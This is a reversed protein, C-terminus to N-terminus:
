TFVKNKKSLYKHLTTYAQLISQSDEVSGGKDPHNEHQLKRYRQKLGALSLADITEIELVAQAKKVADETLSHDIDSGSMKQWFSNLLDEVGAEDTKSLNKWDLYYDALPDNTQLAAGPSFTSNLTIRTPGIDLEGVGQERWEARLHYLTHFLVFHTQFLMLPERLADEDFLSYPPKQLQTIIEFESIGEVFRTQFTSLVEKLLAQLEAHNNL